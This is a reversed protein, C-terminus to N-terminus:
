SPVIDGPVAKLINHGLINSFLLTPQGSMTTFLM